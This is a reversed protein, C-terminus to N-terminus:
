ILNLLIALYIYFVVNSPTFVNQNLQDGVTMVVKSDEGARSDRRGQETCKIKGQEKAQM